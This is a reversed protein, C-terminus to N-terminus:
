CSIGQDAAFRALTGAHGSTWGSSKLAKITGPAWGLANEIKAFTFHKATLSRLMKPIRHVLSGAQRHAALACCGRVVYTNGHHDNVQRVFPRSSGCEPCRSPTRNAHAM